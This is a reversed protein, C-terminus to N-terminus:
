ETVAYKLDRHAVSLRYGLRRLYDGTEEALVVSRHQGGTCGVAIALQQKGESVYGPMVVDLLDFWRQKFLATEPSHHFDPFDPHPCSAPADPLIHM